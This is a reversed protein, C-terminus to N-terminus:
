STLEKYFQRSDKYNEDSLMKAYEYYTRISPGGSAMNRIRDAISNRNPVNQTHVYQYMAELLQERSDKYDGVEELISIARGYNGVTIEKLANQYRSENLMQEVDSLASASDRIVRGDKDTQDKLYFKDSYETLIAEYEGSSYMQKLRYYEGWQRLDESSKYNDLDTFIEIAKDPAKEISSIAIQYRLYPVGYIYGYYGGIALVILLCVLAAAKLARKRRAKGQEAKKQEAERNAILQNLTIGQKAAEFADADKVLGAPVYESDNGTATFYLGKYPKGDLYLCYSDIQSDDQRAMREWTFARGDPTRLSALYYGIMPISSTVIPNEPSYGYDPDFYRQSQTVRDRDTQTPAAQASAVSTPVNVQAPPEAEVRAGCYPCFESDDPVIYGCHLCKM